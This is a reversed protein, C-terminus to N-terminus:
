RESEPLEAAEVNIATGALETLKRDAAEEEEFTEGLLEAEENYGLTLALSRASGYAAMEYHEIRRAAGILAADRVSEDADEAILNSGEAILREMAQCEHGTLRKENLQAIQDLRAVHIKTEKLHSAFAAKLDRHAALKVMRALAKLLQTEASSLDRLEHFFLDQLTKLKETMARHLHVM